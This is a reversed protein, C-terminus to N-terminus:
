HKKKGILPSQSPSSEFMGRPVKMNGSADFDGGGVGFMGVNTVREQRTPVKEKQNALLNKM